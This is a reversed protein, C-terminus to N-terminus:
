FPSEVDENLGRRDMEAYVANFFPEYSEYIIGGLEGSGDMANDMELSEHLMNLEDFLAEDTLNRYDKM